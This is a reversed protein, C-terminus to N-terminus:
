IDAHDTGSIVILKKERLERLLELVGGRCEERGVDYEELLADLIAGLTRPQQILEWIRLGVCNLGYYIGDQLNLIVAEGELECYVCEKSCAVRTTESGLTGPRTSDNSVSPHESM